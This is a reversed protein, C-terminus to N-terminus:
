REVVLALQSALAIELLNRRSLGALMGAAHPDCGDSETHAPHCDLCSTAGIRGWWPSYQICFGRLM